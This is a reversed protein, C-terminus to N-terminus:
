LPSAVSKWEAMAGLRPQHTAFASRQPRPPVFGDRIVSFTSVFRRPGPWSRFGQMIREPKRIPVRSNEARNNLGKHSRHGANPMVARKAAAYSGLRDTVIRRPGGGQKRLLRALSRTAAKASRHVRVIEDPGYGDQDVARWPYHKGGNITIVVEDLHWIDRRGPTERRLRSVYGAGSKMARCRVTECSVVVGRELLMEETLRLSLPFRFCLRVAHAVIERPFRHRKCSVPPQTM